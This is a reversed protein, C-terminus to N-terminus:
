APNTLQCLTCTVQESLLLSHLLLLTKFSLAKLSVSKLPQFPSYALASLVLSLDWTRITTLRPPNLRRAGHLFKLVRDSKRVSQVDFGNHFASIAAVYVKLTDDLRKQLFSLIFLISCNVPDICKSDWQDTFVKWKHAYLCRTSQARVESITKIVQQTLSVSDPSSWQTALCALGVIEAQPALGFRESLIPPEEGSFHAM